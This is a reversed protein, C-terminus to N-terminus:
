FAHCHMALNKFHGGLFSVQTKELMGNESALCMDIYDQSPFCGLSTHAIKKRTIMM